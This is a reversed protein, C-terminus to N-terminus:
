DRNRAALPMEVRCVMGDPAFELQATGGLESALAREILRSGFGRSQPITVQPGGTERWELILCADKRIAESEVHWKICVMGTSNSWAGYKIANTALEHIALTLSLASKASIYITPGMMKLRAPDDCHAIIAQELAGALDIETWREGTLLNNARALAVIRASFREIADEINDARRFTQTAIAQVMALNNKVRHNLENVVLRLHEADRRQETVDNAM